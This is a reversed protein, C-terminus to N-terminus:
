WGWTRLSYVGGVIVLIGIAVLVLGMGRTMIIMGRTARPRLLRPCSEYARPNQKLRKECFLQYKEAYLVLFLGMVIYGVGSVIAWLPSMYNDREHGVM